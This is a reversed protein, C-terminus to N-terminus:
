LLKRHWLCCGDCYPGKMRIVCGWVIGWVPCSGCGSGPTLPLGEWFDWVAPDRRHIGQLICRAVMVQLVEHMKHFHQKGLELNRPTESFLTTSERCATVILSRSLSLNILPIELAEFVAKKSPQPKM